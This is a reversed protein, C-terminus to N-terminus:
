WPSGARSLRRRTTEAVPVAPNVPTVVSLLPVAMATPPLPMSVFAVVAAGATLTAVVPPLTELVTPVVATAVVGALLSEPTAGSAMETGGATTVVVTPVRSSGLEVRPALFCPSVLQISGALTLSPSHTINTPRDHRFVVARGGEM